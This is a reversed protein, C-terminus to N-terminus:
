TQKLIRLDYIAVALKGLIDVCDFICTYIIKLFVRNGSSRHTEVSSYKILYDNKHNNILILYNNKYNNNVIRQIGYSSLKVCFHVCM